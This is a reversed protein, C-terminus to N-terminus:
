HITPILHVQRKRRKAGRLYIQNREFDLDKVRLRICEMLRLGGGYLLGAMLKHKRHMGSLVSYVEDRTMVIPHVKRRKAKVPALKGEIPIDLVRQFLFFLANMAQRQTAASIKENVALHSLFSDLEPKGMKGPHTHGGHFKIFRMIWGSYAQETRYSYHHYRLVQIVQEMLKLDPDPIFKPQSQNALEM